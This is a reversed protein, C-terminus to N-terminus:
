IIAHYDPIRKGANILSHYFTLVEIFMAYSVDQLVIRKCQTQYKYNQRFMKTNVEFKQGKFNLTYTINPSNLPTTTHQNNSDKNDSLINKCSKEPNCLCLTDRRLNTDFQILLCSLFSLISAKRFSLGFYTSFVACMLILRM